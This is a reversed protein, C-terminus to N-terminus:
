GAPQPPASPKKAAPQGQGGSPASTIRIVEELSTVGEIAKRVASEQISPLRRKRLSAKLTAFDGKEIAARDESTFPFVEYCGEQGFYGGGGCMPCVEPKNKILVQGGKRFMQVPKDSPLGLKKLVEAPPQYAQKCNPCLKRLLRSAVSGHLGKAAKTADGVAKVYIQVAQLANEARFSLYVRTRGSEVRAVEQATAPDPLEAIALVDPDRRLLSRATTAFEAGDVKADFVNHRVGDISGQPDIELTQVNSTYADHLRVTAYLTSTRGQHPMAGILVVGEGEEALKKMEEVQAPMMGLEDIKRAVQQDPNFLVTLTPGAASGLTTLRLKFKVNLREMTVDAVQKRRRDEIDMGAIRKFFDIVAVGEPTRMPEGAVRVGDVMYTFGYRGEGAPGIDVRSGRADLAAILIGESAARIAYEPTEQDPPEVVGKPGKFVLSVTAARKKRDKEEKGSAMMSSLSLSWRAEPPVRDDKNRLTFYLALDAFLLVIMAPLGIWFSPMLFGCALAAAGFAFHALNWEKRKFYFRAADKDYITSVVWAWGCLVALLIVPKWASVLMLPEVAALVSLNHNVM